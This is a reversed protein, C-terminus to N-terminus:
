MEGTSASLRDLISHLFSLVSNLQVHFRTRSRRGGGSKFFILWEGQMFLPLPKRGSLASQTANIVDTDIVVRDLNLRGTALGDSATRPCVATVSHRIVSLPGGLGHRWWPPAM